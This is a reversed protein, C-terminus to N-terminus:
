VEKEREREREQKKGTKKKRILFDMGDRRKCVFECPTLIASNSVQQGATVSSKGIQPRSIIFFSDYETLATPLHM